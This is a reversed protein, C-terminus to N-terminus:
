RPKELDFIAFIPEDLVTQWREPSTVQWETPPGPEHLGRILLGASIIAGVYDSFTHHFSSCTVQGSSENARTWPQVYSRRRRDLYRLKWSDGNPNVPYSSTYVPHMVSLVAKGGFRLVRAIEKMAVFLNEVYHLTTSSFVFDVSSSEIFELEQIPAKVFHISSSPGNKAAALALMRASLDVGIVERAGHAALIFTFRGTGCGLDLVRADMLPPLLSEICPVEIAESYSGMKTAFREYDPAMNDWIAETDEPHQLGSRETENQRRLNRPKPVTM